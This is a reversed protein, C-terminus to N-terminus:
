IDDPDFNNNNTYPTLLLHEHEHEHEHEHIDDNFIFENTLTQTLTHTHTHTLTSDIRTFLNQITITPIDRLQNINDDDYIFIVDLNKFPKEWERYGCIILNNTSILNSRKHRGKFKNRIHAIFRQGDNNFVECMGNGLMSGVAVIIELEDGPLRLVSRGGASGNIHKRALGKTKTGGTMNKVM